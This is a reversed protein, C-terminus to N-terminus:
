KQDEEFIAYMATINDSGGAQLAIDILQDLKEKWSINRQTIQLIADDSVYESLGDSCLLYM